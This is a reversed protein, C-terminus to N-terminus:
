NASQQFNNFIGILIFYNFNVTTLTDLVDSSLSLFHPKVKRLNISQQDHYTTECRSFVLSKLGTDDTGYM